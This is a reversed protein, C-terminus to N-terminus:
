LNIRHTIFLICSSEPDQLQFSILTKVSTKPFHALPCTKLAREVAGELSVFWVRVSLLKEYLCYLSVISYASLVFYLLKIELKIGLNICKWILLCVERVVEDESWCKEILKPVPKKM